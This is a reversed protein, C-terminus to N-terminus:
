EDTIFNKGAETVRYAPGSKSTGGVLELYGKRDLYQLIEVSNIGDGSDFFKQLAVRARDELKEM